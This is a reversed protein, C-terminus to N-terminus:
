EGDRELITFEVRRNAAKGEPTKNTDIPETEGYGVAELREASVGGGALHAVVAEARRQSLKMNYGDPGDSDTHGEIRISTLEPNDMIVM